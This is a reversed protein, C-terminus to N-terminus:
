YTTSREEEIDAAESVISLLVFGLGHLRRILGVLGSQDTMVTFRTSHKEVKELTMQLPSMANIEELELLGRIQIRYRCTDDM